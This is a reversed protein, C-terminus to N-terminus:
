NMKDKRLERRLVKFSLQPSLGYQKFLATLPSEDQLLSQLESDSLQTLSELEVNMALIYNPGTAATVSVGSSLINEFVSYLTFTYRTRATLSSVTYTVPGDGDPAAIYIEADNFQLIFSVSNNVKNWQLTISTENQGIPRFQKTNPPATVATINVGSSRVNEFVSFLTFTYTTRATLYYVTHTVPGNGAPANINIEAGNFQLIFSFNNNVKNWQLTISSEDQGISRFDETKPPGSLSSSFPIFKDVFLNEYYNNISWSPGDGNPATINIEAGNFQLIFSFSNNVKNWQLTIRTEDQGISRFDETKPPATVATISVGSSRANEFVSFLTFTYTTGATLSSVTHTVPGDGDPATISIEAGNFLLIFSINNNVKNWQLTISTEDRGISRFNETKSPATVATINVGSSRVDEFVSFLTFTYETAATLSSVTHTVRGDGAPATINIEAGNFQLIFSFNNNVKNWQLTISSENQGISRFDETKPPTTSYCIFPFTLSCSDDSWLGSNRFSTTVCQETSDPQGSAWYHFLLTSGDSWLQEWHLGIWLLDGAALNTINDNEAQNRIHALMDLWLEMFNSIKASLHAM